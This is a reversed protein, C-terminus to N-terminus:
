WTVVELYTCVMGGTMARQPGWPDGVGTGTGIGDSHALSTTDTSLNTIHFIFHIFRYLFQVPM